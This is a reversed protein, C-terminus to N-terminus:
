KGGGKMKEGAAAWNKAATEAAEPITQRESSLKDMAAKKNAAVTNLIDAYGNPGHSRADQVSSAFKKAAEMRAKEDPIAMIVPKMDQVFKKLAADAVGSIEPPDPTIDVDKAEEKEEEPDEAGDLDKEIADMIDEAGVEKHVEKDSQVLQGVIDILKDVKAELATIKEDDAGSPEPDAEKAPAVPTEKNVDDEEKMAEMAKAIDEPDADQVYHKFGLATLIQKSVKMSKKVEMKKEEEEPKSDQIAVKSGARGNPVIAIHNGVIERQEYQGEGIKHWSCVYGSSVERKIDNQVESILGADNVYLDAVLFDGDRRVNQAHGRETMPVTNIDLNATPHTNTVPKGEFSAITAPSFLEELSRYVKCPQGTPENFIAPLEQGYYNMWGTRGIPVNKCILYGEPTLVMNPSIKDGYYDM